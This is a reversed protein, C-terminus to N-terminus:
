IRSQDTGATAAGAAKRLAKMEEFRGTVDRIIAAMGMMAGTGDKLPVISFEVSIRSGDKRLAPVALLDGADYRTRGTRMTEAYGRDHRERLSAPIIIHLSLGVAESAMYGFIRECGANWLRIIGQRDSYLIADAAEAIIRPAIADLVGTASGHNTM